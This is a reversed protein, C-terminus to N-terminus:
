ETAEQEEKKGQGRCKRGKGGAGKKEKDEASEEKAEQEEKKEKDEASEEEAEQDEQEEKDETDEPQNEEETKEEAEEEAVQKDKEEETLEEMVKETKASPRKLVAAPRKKPAMQNQEEGLGFFSFLFTAIFFTLKNCCACTQQNMHNGKNTGHIINIAHTTAPM